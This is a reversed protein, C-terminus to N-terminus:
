LKPVFRKRPSGDAEDQVGWGRGRKAGKRGDRAPMDHADATRLRGVVAAADDVVVSIDRQGAAPSDAMSAAAVPSGGALPAENGGGHAFPAAFSQGAGAAGGVAMLAEPAAGSLALGDGDLEGPGCDDGGGGILLDALHVDEERAAAGDEDGTLRGAANFVHHRLSRSTCKSEFETSALSYFSFQFLPNVALLGM